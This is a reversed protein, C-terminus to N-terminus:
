AEGPTKVTFGANRLRDLVGGQSLLPRLQVVAIAHGPTKLAREILAVQDEKARTDFAAAGPVQALCREYTRENALAGPVDGDAWARTASLTVGPGAHVQAMVEELCVRGVAAPTRLVAGLQPAIDYSKQWIPVGAQKSRDRILKIPDSNVLGASTRYDGILLLAAGLPNKTAYRQAPQGVRTRAEVFRARAEADLTEEFPTSSKLRMYNWAAGISNVPRVRVELFPLIVAKAGQLRREFVAKDWQMRKPALSPVGLVYVTSDGNSVTWWAPGRDRAVVVLEEVVVADPDNADPKASPAPPVPTLPVQGAAPAALALLLALLGLRHRVSM